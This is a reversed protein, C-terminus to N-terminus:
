CLRAEATDKRYQKVNSNYAWSIPAQDGTAIEVRGYMLMDVIQQRDIATFVAQRVALGSFPGDCTSTLMNGFM